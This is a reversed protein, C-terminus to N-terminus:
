LATAPANGALADETAKDAVIKDDAAKKAAADDDAKKDAADKAAQEDPTLMAANKRIQAASLSPKRITPDPAPPPSSVLREDAAAQEEEAKAKAQKARFAKLRENAEAVAQAHEMIAAQEEPTPEPPPPPLDKPAPLGRAKAIEVEQAHREAIAERGTAADEATWPKESWELPFNSVAHQADVAYPFTVAGDNIHYATASNNPEIKLAM